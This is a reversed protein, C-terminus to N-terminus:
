ALINKKIAPRNVDSAGEYRRAMSTLHEVLMPGLQREGRTEVSMLKLVQYVSRPLVLTVQVEEPLDREGERAALIERAAHGALELIRRVAGGDTPFMRDAIDKAEASRGSVIRDCLRHLSHHCDSDLRVLNEPSNDPAAGVAQPTKHHPQTLEVPILRKCVWCPITNGEM